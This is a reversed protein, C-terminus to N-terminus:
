GFGHHFNDRAISLRHPYGHGGYKVQEVAFIAAGAEGFHPFLKQDRTFSRLDQLRIIIRSILTANAPCVRPVFDTVACWISAAARCQGEEVGCYSLLRRHSPLCINYQSSRKRRSLGAPPGGGYM